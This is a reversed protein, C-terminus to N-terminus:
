LKLRELMEKFQPDNRVQRRANSIKTKWTKTYSKRTVANRLADTALGEAKMQRLAFWEAAKSPSLRSAMVVMACRHEMEQRTSMARPRGARKPPADAAARLRRAAAVDFGLAKIRKPAKGATRFTALRLVEGLLYQAVRKWQEAPLDIEALLDRSDNPLTDM